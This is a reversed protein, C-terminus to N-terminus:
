YMEFSKNLGAAVKIVSGLSGVARNRMTICGSYIQPIWMM